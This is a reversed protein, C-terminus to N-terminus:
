HHTSVDGCNSRAGDRFKGHKKIRTYTANIEKDEGEKWGKRQADQL